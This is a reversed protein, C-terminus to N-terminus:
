RTGDGRLSYHLWDLVRSTLSGHEMIEWPCDAEPNQKLDLLFKEWAANHVDRWRFAAVRFISTEGVISRIIEVISTSEAQILLVGSGENLRSYGIAEVLTERDYSGNAEQWLVFLAFHSRALRVLREGVSIPSRRHLGHTDGDADLNHSELLWVIAQRAEKQIARSSACSVFCRSRAGADQARRASVGDFLKELHAAATEGVIDRGLQRFLEKRPLRPWITDQYPKASRVHVERYDAQASIYALTENQLAGALDIPEAVLELSGTKEDVKALLGALISQKADQLANTMKVATNPQDSHKTVILRAGKRPFAFTIARTVTSSYVCAQNFDFSESIEQDWARALSRWNHQLQLYGDAVVGTGLEKVVCGAPRKCRRMEIQEIRAGAGPAPDVRPGRIEEIMKNLVAESQEGQLLEVFLTTEHIRETADALEPSPVTFSEGIIVNIHPQGERMNAQAVSALLSNLLGPGDPGRSSIVWFREWADPALVSM